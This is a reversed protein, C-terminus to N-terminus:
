KRAELMADAVGYAAQAIQKEYDASSLNGRAERTVFGSLAAAAFYDRLTMGAVTGPGAAGPFAPVDNGM